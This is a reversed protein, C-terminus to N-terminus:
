YKKELPSDVRGKLILDAHIIKEQIKKKDKANPNLFLYMRYHKAATIYDGLHEAHVYALNYHADPDNPMLIVAQYYERAAIEFEGKQFYINGMNYHAKAADLRISEDEESFADIRSLIDLTKSERNKVEMDVGAAFCKGASVLSFVLFFIMSSFFIKSLLREKDCNQNIM